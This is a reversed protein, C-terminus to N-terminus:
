LATRESSGTLSLPYFLTHWVVLENYGFSQRMVKSVEPNQM